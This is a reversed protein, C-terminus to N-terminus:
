EGGKRKAGIYCTEFWEPYMAWLLGAAMHEAVNKHEALRLAQVMELLFKRTPMNM